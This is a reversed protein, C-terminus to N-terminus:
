NSRITLDARPKRYMSSTNSILCDMYDACQVQLSSTQLRLNELLHLFAPNSENSKANDVSQCREKLHLQWVTHISFSINISTSRKQLAVRSQSKMNQM